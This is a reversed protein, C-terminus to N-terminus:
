PALEYITVDRADKDELARSTPVSMCALEVLGEQPLYARGPDALLVKTGEAACLMLWRLVRHSMTHEYCVDGAFILDFGKIPRSMDVRRLLELAVGNHAANIQMVAQSLEDIDAGCVKRAGAKAAALGVIGSGAAFDLVRLGTVMEPKDLIARALAQGGPWAFAWFPFPTDKEGKWAEVAHWLPDPDEALQLKLEPVFSPQSLSTQSRIFQVADINM